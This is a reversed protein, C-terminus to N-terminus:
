NQQKGKGKWNGKFADKGKFVLGKGKEGKGKGQQYFSSGPHELYHAAGKGKHSVFGM